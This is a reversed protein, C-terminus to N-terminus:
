PQVCGALAPQNRGGSLAGATAAELAGFDADPDKGDAGGNRSPSSASLRHNGGAFDELGVESM